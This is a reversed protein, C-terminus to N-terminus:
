EPNRAPFVFSRLVKFADGVAYLSGALLILDDAGAEQAALRIADEVNRTKRLMGPDSVYATVRQELVAVPMARPHQAQTLIIRDKGRFLHEMIGEVDKDESVGFIVITRRPSLLANVATQLAQASAANQAGDLILFPRTRMLQMRGPWRTKELGRKVALLSIVIDHLRLLQIIGLALSCNVIQHHGLLPIKLNDYRDFPGCFDFISGRLDSGIVDYIFDKGVEYLRANKQTCVERVVRWADPSQPATAVFGNEKIIGAKEQAILPLSAGLIHMHDLSINTLGSVLPAAVNTADFRGGMGTELIVFDTNMKVFYVFAMVTLIEFYTLGPVKDLHAKIEEFLWAIEEEEVLREAAEGLADVYSLKIRERFQVLHPSTYLGVTYGAEKLIAFLFACVSGKGKTGAIHIIKLKQQPNDLLNLVERVRDLRLQSVDPNNQSEINTRADLYDVVDRFKMTM